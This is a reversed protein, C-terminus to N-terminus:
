AGEGGGPGERPEDPPAARLLRVAWLSLAFLVASLAVGIATRHRETFPLSAGRPEEGFRPNPVLPGMVAARPAEDGEKRELIAELDYRPPSAREDGVYLRHEGPAGARLVIERERVEGRAARITVPASDEDHIVIRLYRKRTEDIPLRTSAVVVGPRPEIRYIMGGGVGPWVERFSTASVDVRRSFEPTDIDLTIARLPIGHAGADLTLRTTKQEEDRFVEEIVLPVEFVPAARSEPAPCRFTAGRIRLREGAEAAESPLLTIRVMRAESRPYPVELHEVTGHEHAIRYVFPGEVATGFMDREDGTEVRVRRLFTDGSVDLLARCHRAGLPLRFTASVGGGGLTVPDFIEGTLEDPPRPAKTERVVRPVERGGADVIRVDALLEASRSARYLDEDVGVRYDGAADIGTLPRTSAYPGVPLIRASPEDASTRPALLLLALLAAGGAAPPGKAPPEKPPDAPPPGSAGGTRMLALLRESFRAYLFGGAVLLAGVGTLLVIQYIREVNFVDWLALKAVAVFFLALGLYRHLVSRAAFGLTLLAAAAAALVLTTTMALRGAQAEIAADIGAAFATWEDVDLPVPPPAPLRTVLTRVELVALAIWLAHGGIAAVGSAAGFAGRGEEDEGASRRAGQDFLLAAVLLAVSTGALATARASRLFPVAIMGERGQTDFFREVLLQTGLVDVTALRILTASFLLAAVLIWTRERSRAAIAAAVAGLAAWLATVTAGNLGFALAAAFLGLALGALLALRAHAAPRARAISAALALAAAGAAATVLARLTPVEDSTALLAEAVFALSAISASLISTWPMRAKEALAVRAFAALLVAALAACAVLLSPQGLSADLERSLQAAIAAVLSSFCTVALLLGSARARVALEAAIAAAVATIAVYLTPRDPLLQSAALLLFLAVAVAGAVAAARPLPDERLVRRAFGVVYVATWGGFLAVLPLREDTPVGHSVALLVLFAAAMPISLLATARLASALAIGAGGLVIAVIALLRVHDHLLLAAGAHSLTLAALAFAKADIRRKPERRDLLLAVGAWQASALGVFALPVARASLAHYAGERAEPPLDAFTSIPSRVDFYRAYWGLFLAVSGPVVLAPVVRFGARLAVGLSLSTLLILYAFLAAPRDEGTSLVVPNALGALLVLVLLSEARHRLSLAAGLALVVAVAAFAVAPSALEYLAVSAWISAVVTALGIGSLAHVFTARTKPRLLEAGGLLAIGTLIGVAVRGAPGIWANDVAYKFFFLAGLLFAAAGIRTLWTLGLQEELSTPPATLPGATSPPEPPPAPPAEETRPPEVPPAPAADETPPPEAVMESATRLEDPAESATESARHLNRLPEAATASALHLNRLPEAPTESAPHLNRLPEAATESADRLDRPAEAVAATARSKKRSPKTATTSAVSEKGPAEAVRAKAAQAEAELWGVRQELAQLYRDRAELRAELDKVRGRAVSALVLSVIPVILVLTGIGLGVLALLAEM